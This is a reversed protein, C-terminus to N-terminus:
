IAITERSFEQQDNEKEKPSCWGIVQEKGLQISNNSCKKKLATKSALNPRQKKTVKNYPIMLFAHRPM